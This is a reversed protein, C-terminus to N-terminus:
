CIHNILLTFSWLFSVYMIVITYSWHALKINRSIISSYNKRHIRAITMDSVNKRLPFYVVSWYLIYFLICTLWNWQAFSLIDNGWATRTGIFYIIGNPICILGGVVVLLTIVTVVITTMYPTPKTGDIMDYIYDMVGCIFWSLLISVVLTLAFTIVIHFISNAIQWMFDGSELPCRGPRSLM